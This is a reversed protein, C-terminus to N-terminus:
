VAIFGAAEVNPDPDSELNPLGFAKLPSLGEHLLVPNASAEGWVPDEPKPCGPNPVDVARPLTFGVKPAGLGKAALGPNSIGTAEVM